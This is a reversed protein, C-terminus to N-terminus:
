PRNRRRQSAVRGQLTLATVRSQSQYSGDVTHIVVPHRETTGVDPTDSIGDLFPALNDENFAEVFSSSLFNGEVYNEVIGPLFMRGQREGRRAETAKTILMATNASVPQGSEGGAIPLSHESTATREGTWGGSDLDLWAIREFTYQNSLGPVIHDVWNNLIDGAYEYIQASYESGIGEELRCDLVTVVPRGLYSGHLTYRITDPATLVPM